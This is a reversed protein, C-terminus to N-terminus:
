HNSEAFELGDGITDLTPLARAPLTKWRVKGPGEDEITGTTVKARRTLYNASFVETEGSGRHTYDRDFGILAFRAGDWRFSLTNTSTGWGGMSRWVGLTLRIVGGRVALGDDFPDDSYPDELRPIVAANVVRLSYGAAGGFAVILVRPNTNLPGGGRDAGVVCHADAGRLVAVLDGHGDSNLDARVSREVKWGAPAFGAASAAVRGPKPLAPMTMAPIELPDDSAAAPATAACIAAAAFLVM